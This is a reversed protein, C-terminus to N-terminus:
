KKAALDRASALLSYKAKLASKMNAPFEKEGNLCAIFDDRVAAFHEEHTTRLETPIELRLGEGDRVVELGERGMKEVATKLLAKMEDINGNPKIFLEPKNGTQPGQEIILDSKSGRMISYHTDGGGEPAELAWIVSLKVATGRLKYTFEGNSYLRLIDDKVKGMIERPFQKQRTILAFKDLPVDTHWRKADCLEYDTVFDFEEGDFVMWQILDVLHTTVDVIGEGQMNVDFYWAPRVLPRGNVNKFLHHISEKVIAPEDDIVLEGFIDKDAMLEKQLISTIEHRETMIDDIEAGDALLEELIKVGRQNITLPKDSLVKIGADRMAK